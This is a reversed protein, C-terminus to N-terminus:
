HQKFLVINEHKKVILSVIFYNGDKIVQVLEINDIKELSSTRSNEFKKRVESEAYTISSTEDYTKNIFVQEYYTIETIQIIKFLNFLTEVKAYYNDFLEYSKGISNGFISVRKVKKIKGSYVLEETNIPIMIKELSLTKGIIIGKSKVLNSQNTADIEILMNGSVLLDGKKVSQNKEIMVVGRQVIIDSIIADTKAVLDGTYTLDEIENKPVEQKQIDILIRSNDLTLGIWAYEPYKNRLEQSINNVSDDLVYLPGKPVLHKLVDNYVESRFDNPNTFEIVRIFNGTTLLINLCLFITLIGTLHKLITHKIHYKYRDLSEVQEDNIQHSTLFFVEGDEIKKIKCTVNNAQIYKLFYKKNTRNIYRKNLSLKKLREM